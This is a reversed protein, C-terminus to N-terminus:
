APGFVAGYEPLWSQAPMGHPGYRLTMDYDVAPQYSEFAHDHVLHLSVNSRDNPVTDAVHRRHRVVRPQALTSTEVWLRRPGPAPRKSTLWMPSISTRPSRASSRTCCTVQLSAARSAM